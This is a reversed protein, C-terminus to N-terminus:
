ERKKLVFEQFRLGGCRVWDTGLEIDYNRRVSESYTHLAIVKAFEDPKRAAIESAAPQRGDELMEDAFRNVNEQTVAMAAYALLQKQAALM